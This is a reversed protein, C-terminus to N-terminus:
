QVNGRNLLNWIQEKDLRIVTIFQNNRDTIITINNTRNYFFKFGPQNRYKARILVTDTHLMSDKVFRKFVSRNIRNYNEQFGIEKAHKSFKKQIQKESFSTKEVLRKKQYESFADNITRTAQYLQKATRAGPYILLAADATVDPVPPEEPLKRYALVQEPSLHGGTELFHRIDAHAADLADARRVAVGGLVVNGEADREAHAVVNRALQQEAHIRAAAAQITEERTNAAHRAVDLTHFLQRTEADSLTHGQRLKQWLDVPESHRSQYTAPPLDFQSLTNRRPSASPERRALRSLSVPRAGRSLNRQLAGSDEAIWGTSSTVPRLTNASWGRTVPGESSSDSSQQLLTAPIDPQTTQFFSALSPPPTYAAIKQNLRAMHHSDVTERLRQHATRGPTSVPTWTTPDIALAASAPSDTFRLNSGSANTIGSALTDAYASLGAGSAQLLTPAARLALRGATEVANGLGAALRAWVSPGASAGNYIHGQLPPNNSSM